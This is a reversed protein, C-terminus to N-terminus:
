GSRHPSPTSRPPRREAGCLVQVQGDRLSDGRLGHAVAHVGCCHAHLSADGSRGGQHCDSAQSEEGPQSWCCRGHLSSRLVTLCLGNDALLAVSLPASPLLGHRRAALLTPHNLDQLPATHPSSRCPLRCCGRPTGTPHQCPQTQPRCCDLESGAAPTHRRELVNM